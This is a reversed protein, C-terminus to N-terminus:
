GVANGASDEPLTIKICLLFEICLIWSPVATQVPIELLKMGLCSSYFDLDDQTIPKAKHGRFAGGQILRV